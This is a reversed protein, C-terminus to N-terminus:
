RGHRLPKGPRRGEHEAELREAEEAQVRPEGVREDLAAPALAAGAREDRQEVHDCDRPAARREEASAHDPHTYRASAAPSTVPVTPSADVTPSPVAHPQTATTPRDSPESKASAIVSETAAVPLGPSAEASALM